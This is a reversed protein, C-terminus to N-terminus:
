LDTVTQRLKRRGVGAHDSDGNDVTRSSMRCLNIQAPRHGDIGGDRVDSIPLASGPNGLVDASGVFGERAARQGDRVEDVGVLVSSGIVRGGTGDDAQEM